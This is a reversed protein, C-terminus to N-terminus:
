LRNYKAFILLLHLALIYVVVLYLTLTKLQAFIAYHMTTTTLLKQATVVQVQPPVRYAYYVWKSTRKNM